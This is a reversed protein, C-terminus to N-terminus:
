FQEGQDHARKGLRPGFWMHSSSPSAGSLSRKNNYEAMQQRLFRPNIAGSRGVRPFPVLGQRKMEHRGLDTPYAQVVFRFCLKADNGDYNDFENYSLPTEWESIMDPDSRGVRPFPFLGVSGGGARKLKSDDFDTSSFNAFM